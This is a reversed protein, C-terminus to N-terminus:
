DDGDVDMCRICSAMAALLLTCGSGDSGLKSVVQLGPLLRPPKSHDRTQARPSRPRLVGSPKGTNMALSQRTGVIRAVGHGAQARRERSTLRMGMFKAKGNQVHLVTRIPTQPKTCRSPWRRGHGGDYPACSWREAHQNSAPVHGGNSKCGIGQILDPFILPSSYDPLTRSLHSLV